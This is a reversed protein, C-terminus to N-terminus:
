NITPKLNMSTSGQLTRLPNIGEKIKRGVSLFMKDIAEPEKAQRDGAKRYEDRWALFVAVGGL